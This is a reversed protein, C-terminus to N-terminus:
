HRVDHEEKTTASTADAASLGSALFGGDVYITQGTTWTADCALYVVASAVDSPAGVRGLPTRGLELRTKTDDSLYNASLRTHVSGPGVANVAIGFPALDVALCQTLSQLGGKSSGYASQGFWAQVAATSTINVIRGEGASRMRRAAQQSVLYPARLNVSLTHDLVDLPTDLFPCEWAVGAVNCLVDPPNGGWVEDVARFAREIAPADRLDCEVGRIRGANAGEEAIVRDLGIVQFGRDALANAVSSGIGGSHGTVIARRGNMDRLPPSPSM